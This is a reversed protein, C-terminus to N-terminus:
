ESFSFHIKMLGPWQTGFRVSLSSLLQRMGISVINVTELERWHGQVLTKIHAKSFSTELCVRQFPLHNSLVKWKYSPRIECRGQWCFRPLLFFHASGSLARQPCEQKQGQLTPAWKWQQPQLKWIDGQIHETTLNRDLISCTQKKKGRVDKVFCARWKWTSGTMMLRIMSQVVKSKNADETMGWYYILTAVVATSLETIDFVEQHALLPFDNLLLYIVRTLWM